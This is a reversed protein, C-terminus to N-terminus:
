LKAAARAARRDSLVVHDINELPNCRKPAVALGKGHRRDDAAACRDRSV